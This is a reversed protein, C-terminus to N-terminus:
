CLTKRKKMFLPYLEAFAFFAEAAKKFFSVGIEKLFGKDTLNRCLAEHILAETKMLRGGPLDQQLRFQLYVIYLAPHGLQQM